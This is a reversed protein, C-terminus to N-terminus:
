NKKILFITKEDIPYFWDFPEFFNSISKEDKLKIEDCLLNNCYSYNKAKVCDLFVVPVFCQQLKMEEDDLYVLFNSIEEGKINYVLGHNLSDNLRCMFYKENENINCEDYYTSIKIEQNKLVVLYNRQGKFYIFCLDDKEEFHSYKLNEVIEECILVGDITITLKEFMSVFVIKNKYKFTTAFIPNTKSYNLFYYTNFKYNVSLCKKIDFLCPTQNEKFFMLCKENSEQKIVYKAFGKLEYCANSFLTCDCMPILYNM